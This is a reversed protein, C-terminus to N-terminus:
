VPEGKPDYEVHVHENDLGASEHIIDFDLGCRKKLQRVAEEVNEMGKCRLDFALGLFHKSARMHVGDRCSTMVADEVGFKQWVARAEIWAVLLEPHLGTLKVGAKLSM